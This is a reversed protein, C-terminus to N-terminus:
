VNTILTKAKIPMGITFNLFVNRFLKERQFHKM